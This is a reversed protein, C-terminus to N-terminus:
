RAPEFLRLDIGLAMREYGADNPHLHDGRQLTPIIRRPHSPDRLAADFDIVGDFAGSARIWHNVAQRMKEGHLTYYHASEYPMITGALIRIGHAHARAILQRYAAIIDEATVAQAPRTHSYGIDNIGELLIIMSVGPVSLVDQDFRALAGIGPGNHLLRNSDIGADVLAWDDTAPHRQLRAALRDPWGRFANPTSGFGETISDGLTVVTEKATPSIIDVRSVLAGTLMRTAGPMQISASFNGPSSVYEVMRHGPPTTREPLYVSIALRSLAPVKLAIPDSLVPAGTPVTIAAQGSFTLGHDSGPVIAGDGSALAIHAAGLRLPSSGFENSLRIRVCTTAASVRVIQRVTAGNFDAVAGFLPKQRLRRGAVTMLLPPSAPFGWAGLWKGRCRAAHSDTVPDAAPSGGSTAAPDAARLVEGTVAYSGLEIEGSACAALADDHLRGALRLSDFDVNATATRSPRMLGVCNSVALRMDRRAGLLTLIDRVKSGIGDCTCLADTGYHLVAHHPRWVARLSTGRPAASAVSAGLLLAGCIIAQASKIQRM